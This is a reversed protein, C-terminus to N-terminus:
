GAFYRKHLESFYLLDPIFELFLKEFTTYNEELKKDALELQNSFHTRKKFNVFIEHLGELNKPKMLWNSEIIKTAIKQSKPPLIDCNAKLQEYFSNIFTQLEIKSYADWHKILFHDFYIDVVIGAYHHFSPHLLKVAKNVASHNDSFRDIQRHFFIGKLVQSPFAQPSITGRLHDAIFNGIRLHPDEGSLFIHMLYNM